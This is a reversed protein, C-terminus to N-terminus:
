RRARKVRPKPFELPVKLVARKTAAASDPLGLRKLENFSLTEVKCGLSKFLPNVKAASMSLDKALLTTDTAYDDIRLCLAFMHTLLMTEMQPTIKAQDKDRSSETFRTILGDLIISPVGKLREQLVQKEGVVRSAARFALMASIYMLIKLETKNTKPASFLLSLHQNVWNSRTYPLSSVREKNSDMHKLASTSIANFEADPIIDHLKYVDDPRTASNDYPPILRSSDAALKAEEQTPLSETNEQIDEQIHGAVGRMADIDVKNRENARIAAKAKKTGFTEGLTNRLKIREQVSAEMPKINKLAKVNRALIHLPASRLTTTKTRKNYIGVLYTCGATQQSEATSVFEVTETEGAVIADKSSSATQSYLRFPTSKPPELAPFSVLVPGIKEPYESVRLTIEEPEDVGRKRKKLASSAM